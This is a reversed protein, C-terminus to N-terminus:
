KHGPRNVRLLRARARLLDYHGAKNRKVSTHASSPEKRSRKKLAVLSIDGACRPAYRSFGGGSAGSMSLACATFVVACSRKGVFEIEQRIIKRISVGLVLEVLFSQETSGM